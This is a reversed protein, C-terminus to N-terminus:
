WGCRPGCNRPTTRAPPRWSAPAARSRRPACPRSADADFHRTLLAFMEDRQAPTLAARAVAVTEAHVPETTNM